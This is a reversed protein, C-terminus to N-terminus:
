PIHGWTKGDRILRIAAESVLHQAAIQNMSIGELLSKRIQPIDSEILKSMPNSSGTPREKNNPDFTIDTVSAWARGRKIKHIAALSVGYESALLKINEKSLLRAKIEIVQQENLTAAPNNVGARGLPHVSFAKVKKRELYITAGEYLYNVVKEFQGAGGVIMNRVGVSTHHPRIKANVGCKKSIIETLKEIFLVSGLAGVYAGKFNGEGQVGAYYCGDGDIYGRIFHPLQKEPLWEPFTLTLSKAQRCGLSALSESLRRSGIRLTALNLRERIIVDGEYGLIERFRELIPLDRMQLSLVIRGERQNNYGDAYMFGLFYAKVESDIIDFFSEDLKKKRTREFKNRQVVAGEQIARRVYRPDIQYYKALSEM